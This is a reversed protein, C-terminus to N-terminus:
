RCTSRQITQCEAILRYFRGFLLQLIVWFIVWFFLAFVVSVCHKGAELM